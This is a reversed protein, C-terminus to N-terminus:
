RQPAPETQAGYRHRCVVSARFCRRGTSWRSTSIVFPSVCNAGTARQGAIPSRPTAPGHRMFSADLPPAHPRRAAVRIPYTPTAAPFQAASPGSGTRMSCGCHHSPALKRLWRTCLRRLRMGFCRTPSGTSGLAGSCRGIYYRQEVRQAAGLLVLQEALRYASTKALGTARTLDTLGLGDECQGLAELVAFAGQLVGRGARPPTAAPAGGADASVNDAYSATNDSPDGITELVTKQAVM